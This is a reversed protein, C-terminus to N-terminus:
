EAKKKASPKKKAPTKKTTTKKGVTKAAPKDAKPSSATRSSARGRGKKKAPPGAAKKADILASAQEFTIEEPKINKPLTANYEGDTVYPGYRGDMVKFATDSGEQSLTKLPERPAAAARQFRSKGGNALAELAAELSLSAAAKWDGVNAKKEGASLYAGYRGVAVSVPESTEPDSGLLIPFSFLLGLDEASLQSPDTAPPVTVRKPSAGSEKEAETLGLELYDGFRGKKHYVDKGSSPEQGVSEPGRFARDLLNLATELNLDAPPLDDPLNATNGKGGEGRQLFPGNRGIRVAIEESIRLLPYPIDKGKSEVQHELGGEGEYFERLPELAARRGESIEDLEEEMRATFQTDVLERFHDELMATVAMATFTPVLEKGKKFVYGRDEITGIITAYTSPRGVGEKELVDLLSAETFRAPPKTAHKLATVEKAEVAENLVVKPLLKEKDGLEAEPDDMGEVYARLFGPFIIRKGSAGFVFDRGSHSVTAEVKTREVEAPKMQCAITRKWILDYLRFQEPTLLRQIEAPRRDMKTPRIAEHAEQANKSKSKYRVPQAPLFERGFLSEIASRADKLASEALTLSDTRMYTILGVREGAGLNIGEYLEQAIQMTRRATFGLKRNAEQQLTSTMFPVPPHERGPTAENLTITWPKAAALSERLDEAEAQHLWYHDKNQFEGQLSFSGGDALRRGDIRQLKAKFGGAKALLDAELDWYTAESFAMRERERLVVLRVAVSQVRGASLRPAVKRWLLPSLTYGYLRDLIRRTEQAKVLDLDLTRPSAIAAKIAEPTVEHFVIREIKAAKKPNIVQLVHWSISEGERDEDTALLIRDASRAASRLASVQKAKSGPVVYLPEYDKAVNVGLRAWKEKKLEAPIEDSGEPLDRVHGYSAQVDYESGLFRSITRAKNPSEVIVLTKAM